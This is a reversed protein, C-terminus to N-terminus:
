CRSDSPYLPTGVESMMPCPLYLRDGLVAARSLVGFFTSGSGAKWAHSHDSSFSASPSAGMSVVQGSGVSSSGSKIASGAFGGFAFL